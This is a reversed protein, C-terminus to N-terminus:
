TLKSRVFVPARNRCRGSSLVYPYPWNCPQDDAAVQRHLDVQTKGPWSIGNVSQTAPLGAGARAIGRGGNLARRDANKQYDSTKAARIFDGGVAQTFRSQIGSWCAR